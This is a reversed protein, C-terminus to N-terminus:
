LDDHLEMRHDTLQIETVFLGGNKFFIGWLPEVTQVWFINLKRIRVVLLVLINVNSVLTIQCENTLIYVTQLVM